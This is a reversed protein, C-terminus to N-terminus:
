PNIRYEQDPCLHTLASIVIAEEITIEEYTEAGELITQTITFHTMGGRAAKCYQNGQLLAESNSYYGNFNGVSTTLQSLFDMNHDGEVDEAPEHVATTTVMPTLVTTNGPNSGSCSVVVMAITCAVFVRRM